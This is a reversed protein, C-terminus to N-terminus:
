ERHTCSADKQQVARRDPALPYIRRHAVAIQIGGAARACEQRGEVDHAAGGSEVCGKSLVCEAEVGSAVEVGGDAGGREEAVGGADAVGGAAGGRESAVG